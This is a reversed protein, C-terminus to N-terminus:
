VKTELVATQTALQCSNIINVVAGADSLSQVTAGLNLTYSGAIYPGRNLIGSITGKISVPTGTIKTVINWYQGIQGLSSSLDLRIDYNGATTTTPEIYLVFNCVVIVDGNSKTFTIPNIVGSRYNTTGAVTSFTTSSSSLATVTGVEIKGAIIAGDVILDASAMEEIRVDQAEM